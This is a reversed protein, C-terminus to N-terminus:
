PVRQRGHSAQKRARADRKSPRCRTLNGRVTICPDSCNSIASRRFSTAALLSSLPTMNRRTIKQIICTRHPRKRITSLMRFRHQLSAPASLHRESASSNVENCNCRLAKREFVPRRLLWIDQDVAPRTEGSRTGEPVVLLVRQAISSQANHRM